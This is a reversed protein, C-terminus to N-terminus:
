PMLAKFDDDKLYQTFASMAAEAQKNSLLEAVAIRGLAEGAIEFARTNKARFLPKSLEACDTAILRTFIAAMEKDLGAKTAANVTAIDAVAPASILGALLWRMISVRDKGTSKLVLCEGLANAGELDKPANTQALGAGTWLSSIMAAIALRKM